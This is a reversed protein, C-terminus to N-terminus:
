YHLITFSQPPSSLAGNAALVGNGATTVRLNNVKAVLDATGNGHLNLTFEQSTGIASSNANLATSSATVFENPANAPLSLVANPFAGSAFQLWESPMVGNVPITVNFKEDPGVAGRTAAIQGNSFGSKGYQASLIQGNTPSVMAFDVVDLGSLCNLYAGSNLYQDPAGYINATTRMAGGIKGGGYMLCEAHLTRNMPVSSNASDHYVMILATNGDATTMPVISAQNTFQKASGCMLMGGYTFDVRGSTDPTLSNAYAYALTELNTGPEGYGTQCQSPTNAPKVAFVLLWPGPVGILGWGQSWYLAPGDMYPQQTSPCLGYTQGFNNGSIYIPFPGSSWSTMTSRDLSGVSLGGCNGPTGNAYVLSLGGDPGRVVDPDSIFGNNVYPAGGLATSATTTLETFPGFPASTSNSVSVDLRSTTDAGANTPSYIDPVYYYTRGDDGQIAAPAEMHYTGQRVWAISNEKKIPGLARWTVGDTSFFGDDVNMPYPNSYNIMGSSSPMDLATYMCYGHQGGFDCSEIDPDSSAAGPQTAYPAPVGATTTQGSSSASAVTSSGMLCLPVAVAVVGGLLTFRARATRRM